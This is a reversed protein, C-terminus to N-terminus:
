IVQWRLWENLDKEINKYVNPMLALRRQLRRLLVKSNVGRNFQPMASDLVLHLLGGFGPLYISRSYLKVSFDEVVGLSLRWDANGGGLIRAVEVFPATSRWGAQNAAEVLTDSDIPIYAYNSLILKVLAKEYDEKSLSRRTVLSFLVAQTWIGKVGLENKMVIRLWLDDSFFLVKEQRALLATEVFSREMTDFMMEKRNQDIKLAERCPIVECRKNIWTLISELYERNKKIRDKTIEERVYKDKDKGVTMFGDAEIGKRMAIVEALLDKTSQAVILREFDDAVVDALDIGHLTLISSLDIAASHKEASLLEAVENREDISGIACKIGLEKNSAAYGWADVVNRGLMSGLMALTVKGSRYTEIVKDYQERHKDFMKTFEEPLGSKESFDLSLSMFSKDSPFMKNFIEGSEHVAHVYKSKIEVIKGKQDQIDSSRLVVTEGVKRKMLQKALPHEPNLEGNRPNVDDRDEIVFWQRRGGKEEVCVATDVDVRPASFDLTKKRSFFMTIYKAHAESESYFQRRAEFMVKITEFSRDILSYVQALQIRKPLSLKSDEVGKKLLKKLIEIKQQRFLVMALRVKVSEDDPFSALHEECLKQAALLDGIDEYIASELETLDKILGNKKRLAQLVELTKENNATRYYCDLLKRTIFNDVSIDALRAYLSAAEGFKGLQYYEIAVSLLELSSAKDKILESARNLKHLAEDNRERTRLVSAQSALNVPVSEDLSNALKEAEDYKKMQLYLDILYRKFERELSSPLKKKLGKLLVGVAETLKDESRLIEALLLPSSEERDALGDLLKRASVFDKKEFLLSAKLLLFRSNDPEFELANELDAIAKGVDGLIRNVLSRNALCQVKFQRLQTDKLDDWVSDLVKKAEEIKQKREGALVESEALSKGQLVSELLVSALQLKTEIGKDNKEKEAFSNRTWKVAEAYNSQKLAVHGFAAMVQPLSRRSKPIKRIIEELTAKASKAQILTSYAGENAPNIKIVEKAAKEAEALDGLLLYGLALNSWSKESKEYQHAEIFNKAAEKDDGLGLHSAGINTTIRFKVRDSARNWIRKKLDLLYDLAEQPKLNDILDRAYNLEDHYESDLGSTVSTSGVNAILGNLTKLVQQDKESIPEVSLKKTSVEKPFNIQVLSGIAQQKIDVKSNTVNRVDAQNSTRKIL